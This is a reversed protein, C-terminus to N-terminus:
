PDDRRADVATSALSKQVGPVVDGLFSEFATGLADVLARGDEDPASALLVELAAAANTRVLEPRAEIAARYDPSPVMKMLTLAVDPAETYMAIALASARSQLREVGGARVAIGALTVRIEPALEVREAAAMAADAAQPGGKVLLGGLNPLMAIEGRAIVDVMATWGEPDHIQTLAYAAFTRATPTRRPDLVREVLAPVADSGCMVLGALVAKPLEEGAADLQSVFQQAVPDM